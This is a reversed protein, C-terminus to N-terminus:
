NWIYEKKRTSGFYFIMNFFLQFIDFFLEILFLKKQNLKKNVLKLTVSIILLRALFISSILIYNDSLLLLSVLLIYFLLRSFPEFFLLFKHRFKYYSATTLHRRKQRKWDKFKEKPKSVTFSNKSLIIKANKKNANENVFLDDSGSLLNIHGFGKVREFTSKRYAMNRGVAMYPIGALGMGLYNMAIYVTDARIIKNLLGKKTEYAGFGIVFETKEDFESVMEKIWQDSAPKCDADSFLLIETKAAKIGVALATKKGHKYVRDYPITTVYLNPYKASMQALVTASDDTSADNVVIVTYDPYDQSLFAPLNKELNKAENRAAIIISVPPLKSPITSKKKYFAVRIYFFLWYFLNIATITYFIILLIRVILEQSMAQNKDTVFLACDRM